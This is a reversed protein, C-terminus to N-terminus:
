AVDMLYFAKPKYDAPVQSGGECQLGEVLVDNYLAKIKAPDYKADGPEAIYHSVIETCINIFDYGVISTEIRRKRKDSIESTAQNYAQKYLTAFKNELGHPMNEILKQVEYVSAYGQKTKEFGAILKQYGAENSFSKMGKAITYWDDESGMAVKTEFAKGIGIAGNACMERILAISFEPVGVGDYPISLTYKKTFLEGLITLDGNFRQPELFALVRGPEDQFPALKAGHSELMQIVSPFDLVNNEPNSVGVLQGDSTTVRMARDGRKELVRELAEQPSFLKFIRSNLGTTSNFTQWFRDSDVMKQGKVYTTIMKLNNTFSFDSLSVNDYSVVPVKPEADLLALNLM